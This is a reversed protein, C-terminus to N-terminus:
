RDKSLAGFRGGDSLRIERLNREFITTARVRPLAETVSHNMSINDSPLHPRTAFQPNFIRNQSRSPRRSRQFLPTLRPNDRPSAPPGTCLVVQQARFDVHVVGHVAQDDTTTGRAQGRGNVDRSKMKRDHHHVSAVTTRRLNGAGVVVGPKGIPNGALPQKAQHSRLRDFVARPKNSVFDHLDLLGGVAENGM